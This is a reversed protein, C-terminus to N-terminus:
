LSSFLDPQHHVAPLILRYYSHVMKGQTQNRHAIDHGRKRLDSIRSHVAMAGSGRHLDMMSVWNGKSNKLMQLISDCQSTGTEISPHM